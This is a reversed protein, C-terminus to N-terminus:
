TANNENQKGEPMTENLADDDECHHYAMVVNIVGSLGRAFELIETVRYTNPTELVLVLKGSADAAAIDCDPISELSKRVPAFFDPKTHVVLSSIHTENAAM